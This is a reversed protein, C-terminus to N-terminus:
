SFLCSDDGEQGESESGEGDQFKCCCSEEKQVEAEKTNSFNAVLHIVVDKEDLGAIKAVERILNGITTEDPVKAHAAQDTSAKGTAPSLDTHQATHGTLDYPSSKCFNVLVSFTKECTTVSMDMINSQTNSM